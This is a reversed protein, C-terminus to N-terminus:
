FITVTKCHEIQQQIFISVDFKRKLFQTHKKQTGVLTLSLSCKHQLSIHCAKISTCQLHHSKAISYIFIFRLLHHETELVGNDTHAISSSSNVYGQILFISKLFTKSTNFYTIPM